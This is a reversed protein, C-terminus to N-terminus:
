KGGCSRLPPEVWGLGDRVGGPVRLLFWLRYALLGTLLLTDRAVRNPSTPGTATM